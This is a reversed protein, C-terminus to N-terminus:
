PRTDPYNTEHGTQGSGPGGPHQTIFFLLRSEKKWKIFSRSAGREKGGVQTRRAAAAAHSSLFAHAGHMSLARSLCHTACVSLARARSRSSHLRPRPARASTLGCGRESREERAGESREEERGESMGVRATRTGPPRVKARSPEPPRAARRARTSAAWPSHFLSSLLSSFLSSPATVPAAHGKGGSERLRAREREEGPRGSPVWVKAVRVPAEMVVSASRAAAPPATATVPGAAAAAAATAAVGGVGVARRAAM